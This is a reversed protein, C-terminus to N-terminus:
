IVCTTTSARGNRRKDRLYENCANFAVRVVYHDFNNIHNTDRLLRLENLKQVLCLMVDQYIDAADTFNQSRGSPDVYFGLRQWLTRRVLPAAYTQLLEGALRKQEAEDASHLYALLVSDADRM